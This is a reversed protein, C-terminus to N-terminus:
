SSPAVPAARALWYSGALGCFASAALIGAKAQALLVPDQFSLGAVFLSMTFGIGALLSAGGMANWTLGRPLAALGVAVSVASVVFVGTLKGVILGLSAGLAIPSALLAGPSGLAVGANALAFLPMIGLNVWPHLGAEMRAALGAPVFFAAAAGAVTAHVGSKLVCYWLLTGALAYAWPREVGKRNLTFLLAVPAAACALWAASLNATYFLAIVTVAGMDDAVALATLFVKLAPDVRSGLLNLVGLVFAIDTAMPIGWGRAGPGGSNLGAYILAPFIMGGAAALVPLAGKRATSLEGHLIERKIELGVFFFFIAMLGDNIAHLAPLRLADYSAAWPSNAWLLAAVGAALLILGAAVEVGRNASSSAM